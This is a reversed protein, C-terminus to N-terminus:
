LLLGSGLGLLSQVDVSDLSTLSHLGLFESMKGSGLVNVADLLEDLLVLSDRGAGDESEATRDVGDVDDLNSELGFPAVDLPVRVDCLSSKLGLPLSQPSQLLSGNLHVHVIMNPKNVTFM